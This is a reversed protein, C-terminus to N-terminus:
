NQPWQQTKWIQQCILAAREYYWIKPNSIAWSFNWWRWQSQKYNSIKLTTFSSPEKQKNLSQDLLSFTLELELLCKKCSIQCEMEIRQVEPEKDTLCPVYNKKEKRQTYRCPSHSSLLHPSLFHPSPQPCVTLIQTDVTLRWKKMWNLCLSYKQKQQERLSLTQENKQRDKSHKPTPTEQWLCRIGRIQKIWNSPCQTWTIPMVLQMQWHCLPFFTKQHHNIGTETFSPKLLSILTIEWEWSFSLIGKTSMFSESGTM